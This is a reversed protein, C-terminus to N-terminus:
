HVDILIDGSSIHVSDCGYRDCSMPDVIEVWADVSLPGVGVQQMIEVEDTWELIEGADLVFRHVCGPHDVVYGLGHPAVSNILNYGKRQSLCAEVLQDGDNRLVYHADVVSGLRVDPPIAVDLRLCREYNQIGVRKPTCVAVVLVLSALVIGLFIKQKM